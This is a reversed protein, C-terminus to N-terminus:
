GGIGTLCGNFIESSFSVTSYIIPFVASSSAVRNFASSSALILASSSALILASSSAL